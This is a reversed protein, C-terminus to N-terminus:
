AWAVNHTEYNASSEKSSRTHHKMGYNKALRRRKPGRQDNVAAHRDCKVAAGTKGPKLPM